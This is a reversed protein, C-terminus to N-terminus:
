EGGKAGLIKYLAMPEAVGKLKAYGASEAVVQERVQQYSAESILLQSGYTKNEGEIRSAINVTDGIATYEMKQPAGINGVVAEGSHIGIGIVLPELGRKARRRNYDANREVMRLACAVARRADDPGPVPAGFLAMIGDGIFKNVMGGHAKIESTMDSFYENLEEVVQQPDRGQCYGTYNRLDSFMVTVQQRTGGLPIEGQELLDRALEDSVYRGFVEQLLRRQRGETLSYAGYSAFGSLMAALVPPVVPLVLGSQQSRAAVSCYVVVGLLLLFPALPFRVRFILLAALLAAGLVLVFGVAQRSQRLYREELLTSVVDAHIELGSTLKQDGGALYFPTPQMDGPDLTGILVIKGRFWRELQATDGKRAAALVEAMSLSPFTGGPGWYHILLFGSPDLPVTRNGLRLSRRDPAMVGREARLAFAALRAAFSEPSGAGRGQLEQRRAFGDADLTLNSFGMSGQTSALMYLPLDARERQLTHYALVVPVSASVEAFAAALERDLGPAWKEMPIAFFVDLGVLRAGGAATARLMAAFHPHWFARPEPIAAETREDITVLVIDASPAQRGRLVFRLDYTKLELLQLPSTASIVWALGASGLAAVLPLTLAFWKRGRPKKPAPPTAAPTRTEGVATSASTALRSGEISKGPTSNYVLSFYCEELEM